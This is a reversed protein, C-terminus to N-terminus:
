KGQRSLAGGAQRGSIAYGTESEETKFFLLERKRTHVIPDVLRM